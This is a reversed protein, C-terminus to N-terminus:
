KATVQSTLVSDTSVAKKFAAVLKPTKCAYAKLKLKQLFNTQNQEKTYIDQLNQKALRLNSGTILLYSIIYFVCSRM